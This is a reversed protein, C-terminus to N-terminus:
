RPNSTARITRPFLALFGDHHRIVFWSAALLVVNRAIMWLGVMAHSDGGSGFCGCDIVMGRVLATALAVTFLAFLLFAAGAAPRVLVGMVLMAGAVLESWAMVLAFLNSLSVPLLEYARVSIAFSQPNQVKDWSAYLLVVGVLLRSALGLWRSAPGRPSM